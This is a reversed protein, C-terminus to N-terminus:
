CGGHRQTGTGGAARRECLHVYSGNIELDHQSGAVLVCLLRVCRSVTVGACGRLMAVICQRSRLRRLAPATRPVRASASDRQWRRAQQIVPKHKIQSSGLKRPAAPTWKDVRAQPYSITPSIVHSGAAAGSCWSVALYSCAAHFYHASAAPFFQTPWWWDMIPEGNKSYRAAQFCASKLNPAVCVGAAHVTYVSPCCAVTRPERQFRCRAQWRPLLPQATAGTTQM